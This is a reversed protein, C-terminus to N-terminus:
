GYYITSLDLTGRKAIESIMPDYIGLYHHMAPLIQSTPKSEQKNAENITDILKQVDTKESPKEIDTNFELIAKESNKISEQLSELTFSQEIIKPRIEVFNDSAKNEKPTEESFTGGLLNSLTESVKGKKISSTDIWASGPNMASQSQIEKVRKKEKEKTDQSRTHEFVLRQYLFKNKFNEAQEPELFEPDDRPLLTRQYYKESETDVLYQSIASLNEYTKYGEPLENRKREIEEAQKTMRRGWWSDTAWDEGFESKIYQYIAYGAGGLAAVIATEAMLPGAVTLLGRIAVIGASTKFYDLASEIIGKDDVPSGKESSGKLVALLEKTYEAKYAGKDWFNFLDNYFSGKGKFPLSVGGGDAPGGTGGGMGFAGSFARGIRSEQEAYAEEEADPDYGLRQAKNYRDRGYFERKERATQWSASARSLTRFANYGFGITSAAVQGLPGLATRAALSVGRGLLERGRSIYAQDMYSLFASKRIRPAGAYNITVGGPGGGMGGAGGTGGGEQGQSYPSSANYKLQINLLKAERRQRLTNYRNFQSDEVRAFNRIIEVSLDVLEELTRIVSDVLVKFNIVDNDGAWDQANAIMDNLFSMEEQYTAIHERLEERTYRPKNDM